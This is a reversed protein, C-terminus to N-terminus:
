LLSYKLDIALSSSFFIFMPNNEVKCLDKEVKDNAGDVYELNV